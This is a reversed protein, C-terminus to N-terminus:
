NLKRTIMFMLSNIANKIPIIISAAVGPGPTNAEIALAIASPNLFDKYKIPPNIKPSIIKRRNASNPKDNAALISPLINRNMLIIPPM